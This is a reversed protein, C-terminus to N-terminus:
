RLCHTNIATINCRIFNKKVAKSVKGEMKEEKIKTFFNSTHIHWLRVIETSFDRFLKLSEPTAHFTVFLRVKSNIANTAEARSKTQTFSENGMCFVVETKM